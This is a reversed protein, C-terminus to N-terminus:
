KVIVKRGNKIYIGAPVSSIDTALKVGTITTVSGEGKAGTRVNTISDAVNKNGYYYPHFNDFLSWYYSDTKTGRIGLRLSATGEALEGDVVNDYM